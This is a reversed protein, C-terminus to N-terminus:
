CQLSASCRVKVSSVSFPVQLPPCDHLSLSQGSTQELGCTQYLTNKCAQRVAYDRSLYPPCAVSPYTRLSICM